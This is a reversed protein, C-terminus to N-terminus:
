GQRLVKGFLYNCYLCFPNKIVLTISNRQSAAIRQTARATDETAERKKSYVTLRLCTIVTSEPNHVKDVPFWSGIRVSLQTSFALLQYSVFFVGPRIHRGISQEYMKRGSRSWSNELGFLIFQLAQNSKHCVRGRTHM